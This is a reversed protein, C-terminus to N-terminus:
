VLSTLLGRLFRGLWFAAASPQDQDETSGDHLLYETPATYGEGPELRIRVVRIPHGAAVYARFDNTHPYRHEHGTGHVARCVTQVDLAGLVIYRTGPGLNLAIRRRGTHRDSCRLKDWNDLHLGILRGDEYNDTTTVM